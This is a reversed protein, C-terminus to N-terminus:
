VSRSQYYKVPKGDRTKVYPNHLKSFDLLPINVNKPPMSRKRSVLPNNHVDSPGILMSNNRIANTDLSDGHRSDINVSM